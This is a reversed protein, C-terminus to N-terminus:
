VSAQDVLRSGLPTLTHVVARGVRSTHVLGADRLVTTHQSASALSIGIRHALQTTTADAALTCLVAARTPGLLAALREDVVRGRAERRAPYVVAVAGGALELYYPHGAFFTPLLTLGRGDLDVDINTRGLLHCGITLVPPEWRINPHLTALLGDVGHETLLHARVARDAEVATAATNLHPTFIRAYARLATGLQQRASPAGSALEQTWETAPKVESLHALQATLDAAPTNIVADLGSRFDSVNTPTLFDPIYDDSFLDLLPRSATPLRISAASPLGPISPRPGGCQLRHVSCMLEFM